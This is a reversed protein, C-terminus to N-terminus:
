YFVVMQLLHCEWSSMRFYPQLSTEHNWEALGGNWPTIINCDFKSKPIGLAEEFFQNPPNTMIPFAAVFHLLLIVEIAIKFGGNCVSEVINAAAFDGLQFYGVAAM